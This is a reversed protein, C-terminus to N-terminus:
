PKAKHRGNSVPVSSSFRNQSCGRNSFSSSNSAKMSRMACCSSCIAATTAAGVSADVSVGIPSKL